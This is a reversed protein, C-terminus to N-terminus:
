TAAPRRSVETSIAQSSGATRAASGSYLATDVM